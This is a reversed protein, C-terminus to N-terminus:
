CPELTTVISLAAMDYNVICGPADDVTLMWVKRTSEILTVDVDGEAFTVKKAPRTKKAAQQCSGARESATRAEAVTLSVAEPSHESESATTVQM